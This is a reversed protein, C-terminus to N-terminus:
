VNTTEAFSDDIYIGTSKEAAITMSKNPKRKKKFLIGKIKRILNFYYIIFIILLLILFISIIIAYKIIDDDKIYKKHNKYNDESQKESTNNDDIQEYINDKNNDKEKNENIENEDKIEFDEYKYDVIHNDKYIKVSGEKMLKDYENDTINMVSNHILFNMPITDSTNNKSYLSVFSFKNKNINLGSDLSSSLTYQPSFKQISRKKYNESSNISFDEHRKLDALSVKNNNNNDRKKEKKKECYKCFEVLIINENTPCSLGYNDVNKHLIRFLSLNIDINGNCIQSCKDIHMSFNFSCSATDNLFDGTVIEKNFCNKKQLTGFCDDLGYPKSLIGKVRIKYSEKGLDNCSSWKSFKKEHLCTSTCKSNSVNKILIMMNSDKLLCFKDEDNIIENWNSFTSDIVSCINNRDYTAIHYDEYNNLSNLCDRWDKLIEQKIIKPKVCFKGLYINYNM